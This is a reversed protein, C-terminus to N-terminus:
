ITLDLNSVKNTSICDKKSVVVKKKPSQIANYLYVDLYCQQLEKKFISDIIIDLLYVKDMIKPWYGILKWDEDREFHLYIKNIYDMQEHISTYTRNFENRTFVIVEEGESFMEPNYLEVFRGNPVGESVRM